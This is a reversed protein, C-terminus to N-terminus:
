RSCWAAVVRFPRSGAAMLHATQPVAPTARPAAGVDGGADRRAGLDPKKSEIAEVIAEAVQDPTVALPAEDYATTMKSSSAPAYSWCGYASARGAGRGARPLLRRFRGQDLRLRLQLPPGARRGRQVAGRDPWPVPGAAEPRAAGGPPVPATYNVEALELALDPDTWAQEPDGLLGFAVLAIDIDGGAFAADITAAHSAHDRADLRSRHGLLGTGAAGPPPPAASPPAPPWCWGCGPAHTNGPWRSPSTRPAEWCCCPNRYVSQM